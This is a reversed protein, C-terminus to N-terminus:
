FGQWATNRSVETPLIDSSIVLMAVANEEIFGRTDGVAAGEWNPDYKLPRTINWSAADLLDANVDASVLCTM